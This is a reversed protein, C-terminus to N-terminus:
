GRRFHAGLALSNASKYVGVWFSRLCAAAVQRPSCKKYSGASAVRSEQRLRKCWDNASVEALGLLVSWISLYEFSHVTYVYALVGRLLDSASGIQRSREFAGLAKAQDEM